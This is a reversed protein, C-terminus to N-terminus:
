ILKVPKGIVRPPNDADLEVGFIGEAPTCGWYYFLRGDDDSFLMPDIQAPVGGPLRIPGIERFPGLPSDATYVPSESAMLLFKGKHKVVTPAYGLDRVNLPHHQWTAGGDTSVWAMDVSPYLYWVGEHWLVSVDALERFQQQRDVLWLPDDPPVPAGVTVDRARRGLPYNPLSIPNCYTAPPGAGTGGAPRSAPAQGPLVGTGALVALAVLGTYRSGIVAFGGFSVDM